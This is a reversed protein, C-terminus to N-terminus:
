ADMRRLRVGPVTELAAVLLGRYGEAEADTLTRDLPQLIVRLTMASEGPALPAGEYRDIWQLSRPAPAPVAALAQLAGEAPVGPELVISLDRFVAPQRSFPRYAPLDRGAPAGGLDIEGLWVDATLDLRRALDPHVLGCWAVPRGSADHWTLSRGPHFADLAPAARSPASGPFAASIVDEVIGAVDWVDVSRARASWHAPAAPGSWALAARLPQDPFAGAGKALFVTGVEFLRIEEAGRRLNLDTSRLLGPLLSRRLYGLTEAIPNTLAMAPPAGALVFAGDEDPGLMAYHVTEHFGLAALRDGAREEADLSARSSASGHPEAPARSPIRDYGLHRGIEEILDAERQLDVRWSPVVVEFAEGRLEPQLGLEHLARRADEPGVEFGLLASARAPRVSLRGARRPVPRADVFGPAPSGGALESLLRAALHQAAEPAEPDGGREFRQSADTSMGLARAGSRVAAPAFWAAEILIDTTAETIQTDAGGMVGGLAVAREADAIVITGPALAREIGDLTTLREGRKSARVEIRSGRVRALDFFHVPQGLELMVLNSADVVNNIPRLGCATLREVVWAPCPAVRVGRVVGATYRGCLAPDAISVAITADAPAGAGPVSPAAPALGVGFAAAVERAVGLHGLADPRNAPVDIDLVTDDGSAVLADVTLGRATLRRAIEAPEAEVPVLVKLWRCSILM